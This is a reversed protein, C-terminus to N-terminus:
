SRLLERGDIENIVKKNVRVREILGDTNKIKKNIEDDTQQKETDVLFDDLKKELNIDSM